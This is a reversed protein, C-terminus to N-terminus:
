RYPSAITLFHLTKCSFTVRGFGDVDDSKKYQPCHWAQHEAPCPLVTVINRTFFGKIGKKQRESNSIFEYSSHGGQAYGEVTGQEMENGCNLCKM